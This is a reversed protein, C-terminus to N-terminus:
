WLLLSVVALDYLLLFRLIFYVDYWLVLLFLLFFFVIEIIQVCHM